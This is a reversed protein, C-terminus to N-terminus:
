AHVEMNISNAKKVNQRPLSMRFVLSNGGEAHCAHVCEGCNYCYPHIDPRRPDLNIPCSANCAPDHGDCVCKQHPSFHVRLTKKNRPLQLTAGVPCVYKCWFRRGVAFEIILIVLIFSVEIGVIGGIISDAFASSILGPMSIFNILSVGLIPIAIIIATYIIWYPFSRPNRNRTVRVGKSFKKRLEMGWESLLNFPCVWGCFVKGWFLAVVLPILGAILIPMTISKTLLLFQIVIAPDIINLGGISLSYFTGIIHNWDSKNLIPVLVIFALALLQITRRYTHLHRYIHQETKSEM